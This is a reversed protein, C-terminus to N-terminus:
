KNNVYQNISTNILKNADENIVHASDTMNFADNTHWPNSNQIAASIVILDCAKWAKNGHNRCWPYSEMAVANSKGGRTQEAAFVCSVSVRAHM